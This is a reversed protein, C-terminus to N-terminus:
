LEHPLKGHNLGRHAIYDRRLNNMRAQNTKKISFIHSQIYRLYEKNRLM